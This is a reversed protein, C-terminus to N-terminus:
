TICWKQYMSTISGRYVAETSHEHETPDEDFPERRYGVIKCTLEASDVGTVENEISVVLVNDRAYDDYRRFPRRLLAMRSSAPIPVARSMRLKHPCLHALKWQTVTNLSESVVDLSEPLTGVGGATDSTSFVVGRAQFHLGHEDCVGDEWRIYATHPFSTIVMPAWRFPKLSMKLVKPKQAPNSDWLVGLPIKRMLIYFKAMREEANSTSAIIALDKGLLSAVCLPVDEPRSTSRREIAYYVARFPSWGERLDRMERVSPIVTGLELMVDDELLLVREDAVIETASKAVGKVLTWSPHSAKRDRDYKQYLFPGDQMQFYLKDGGLAESALTAEQLTWLRKMWGSCLIRLGLELFSAKNSQVIELERDLVLVASAEHFTKGLLQIAKKRLAKASSHVPVCLTDM